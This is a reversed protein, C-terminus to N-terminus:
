RRSSPRSSTKSPSPTGTKSPTMPKPLGSPSFEMQTGTVRKRQADYPKAKGFSHANRCSPEHYALRGPAFTRACYACKESKWELQPHEESRQIQTEGGEVYSDFSESYKASERSGSSSAHSAALTSHGINSSHRGMGLKAALKMVVEIADESALDCRECEDLHALLSVVRSTPAIGCFMCYLGPSETM